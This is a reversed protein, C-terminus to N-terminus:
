ENKRRSFRLLNNISNRESKASKIFDEMPLEKWVDNNIIIPTNGRKRWGQIWKPNHIVEPIDNDNHDRNLFNVGYINSHIKETPIINYTELEKYKNKGWLDKAVDEDCSFYFYMRKCPISSNDFRMKDDWFFLVCKTGEPTTLGFHPEIRKKVEDKEYWKWMEDKEFTFEDIKLPSVTFFKKPKENTKVLELSVTEGEVGKMYKDKLKELNEENNIDLISDIEVIDTHSEEHVIQRKVKVEYINNKM